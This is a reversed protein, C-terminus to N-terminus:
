KKREFKELELVITTGAVNFTQKVFGVDKVFWYNTEIKQGGEELKIQVVLAKFKGAGVAVAEEKLIEGEYAHKGQEKEVTFEGKWKMGVKAPYPLLSFPPTVEAGNYRHRFVGKDTQSLHETIPVNPSELRALVTKNITEHKAITTSITADKGNANVKYTWTNGVEIPYYNETKADKEGQKAEQASSLAASLVVVLGFVPTLRLHWRM